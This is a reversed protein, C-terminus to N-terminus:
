YGKCWPDFAASQPDNEACWRHFDQKSSTYGTPWNEKTGYKRILIDIALKEINDVMERHQKIDFIMCAGM